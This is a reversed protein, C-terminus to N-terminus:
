CWVDGFKFENGICYLDVSVWFSVRITGGAIGLAGLSPIVHFPFKAKEWYEAMIPAVEKEMVSRVKWRLAQEDPSLLDDFQFYDSVCPPFSSAPTAQPFAVSVDLPQSDFYSTRARGASDDGEQIASTVKVTM